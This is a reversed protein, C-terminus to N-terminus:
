TSAGRPRGQHSVRPVTSEDAAAPAGREDPRAAIDALGRPPLRRPRLGPEVSSHAHQPAVPPLQRVACQASSATSKSHELVLGAQHCSTCVYPGYTGVGPYAGTLFEAAISSDHSGGHDGDHCANCATNGAAIATKVRTSTSEHCMSCTNTEDRYYHESLLASVHCPKCPDAGTGASHYTAMPANHYPVTPYTGADTHCYTCNSMQDIRVSDDAPHYDPPQYFGGIPGDYGHCADCNTMPHDHPYGAHCTQCPTLGPNPMSPQTLVYFSWSLSASMGDINTVDRHRHANRRQHAEGRTGRRRPEDFSQVDLARRRRRRDRRPRDGHQWRLGERQDHALRDDVTSKPAPAPSDLTPAAGIRFTWSTSYRVGAWNMESVEVTHLGRALNSSPTYSITARSYNYSGDPNRSYTIKASYKKGDLKLWTAGDNRPGAEDFVQM